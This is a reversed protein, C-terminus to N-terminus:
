TELSEEGDRSVVEVPNGIERFINCPGILCNLPEPGRIGLWGVRGGWDEVRSGVPHFYLSTGTPQM